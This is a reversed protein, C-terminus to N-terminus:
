RIRKINEDCIGFMSDDLCCIYKGINKLLYCSKFVKFFLIVGWVYNRGTSDFSEIYGNERDIM